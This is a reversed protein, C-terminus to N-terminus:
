GAPADPWATALAARAAVLAPEGARAALCVASLETDLAHERSLMVSGEHAEQLAVAERALSLGVGAKVLALMSAEQDVEAVIQPTVGDTRWRPALLRHHVSDRPTWVWPLSALEAWDRGRLRRDWGRPAVVVYRVAALVQRHVGEPVSDGLHFGLDLRGERVERLVAGSIGHRLVPRWHPAQVRLARLLDGLRLFAPDLITGIRLPATAPARAGATPPRAADRLRDAAAVAERAAPLLREGDETLRLGRGTRAVLSLGLQDQLARLQMSLASVSLHLRDAAEGLRGHEAVAVFTRLARLDLSM